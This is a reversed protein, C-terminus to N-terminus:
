GAALWDHTLVIFFKMNIGLSTIEQADILLAEVRSCSALMSSAFFINLMLLFTKHIVIGGNSKSIGWIM